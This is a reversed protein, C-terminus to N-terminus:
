QLSKLCIFGISNNPIFCYVNVSLNHYVKSPAFKTGLMFICNLVIWFTFSISFFKSFNADSPCIVDGFPTNVSM